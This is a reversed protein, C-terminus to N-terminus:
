RDGRKRWERMTALTAAFGDRMPTPRGFGIDAELRATRFRWVLGATGPQLDFVADPIIARLADMSARMTHVDGSTNYATLGRHPADIGRELIEAIDEIYQWNVIDDGCPVTTPRGDLANEFIEYGWPRGRHKGPGYGQCFRFGISELGYRRHYFGALRENASKTIGYLTEPFHPALDDVAVDAGGHREPPGFVSAASAFVLRRVKFLRAAELVNLMGVTNQHFTTFANREAPPPLMSALHVIAEPRHEAVVSLLETPAAIDGIAVSLQRAADAGCILALQAFDPRQDFLVVKRGSALLRRTLYLGIHGFGGTILHM